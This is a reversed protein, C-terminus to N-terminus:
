AQYAAISINKNPVNYGYGLGSKLQTVSNIFESKNYEWTNFNKNITQELYAILAQKTELTYVANDTITGNEDLTKIISKSM